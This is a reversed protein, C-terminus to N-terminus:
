GHRLRDPDQVGGGGERGKVEGGQARRWAEGVPCVSENHCQRKTEQDHWSDATHATHVKATLCRHLRPLVSDNVTRHIASILTELEEKSQPLGSTVAVPKPAVPGKAKATAAEKSVVNSGEVNDVEMPVDAPATKSDTEMEKEDDSADSEDDAAEEVDEAEASVSVAKWVHITQNLSNKWLTLLYFM